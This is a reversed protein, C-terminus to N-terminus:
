KIGNGNMFFFIILGLRALFTSYGFDRTKSHIDFVRHISGTLVCLSAAVQGCGSRGPAVRLGLVILGAAAAAGGAALSRGTVKGLEGRLRDHYLLSPGPVEETSNNLNTM